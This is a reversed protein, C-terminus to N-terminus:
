AIGYNSFPFNTTTADDEKKNITITPRRGDSGGDNSDDPKKAGGFFSFMTEPNGDKQKDILITKRPGAVPQRQSTQDVRITGRVPGSNESSKGEGGFLSMMSPGDGNGIAQTARDDAPVPPLNAKPPEYTAFPNVPEKEVIQRKIVITSRGLLDGRPTNEDDDDDDDNNDWLSGIMNSVQQFGSPEQSQRNNQIVVTGRVSRDSADSASQIVQTGSTAPGASEQIVQTASPATATSPMVITPRGGFDSGSQLVQTPRPAVGAGSSANPDAQQVVQTARPPFGGQSPAEGSQVVQTARPPFGGQPSPGPGKQVVLTPRPAGMSPGQDSGPIIQTPRVNSATDDVQLTSRVTPADEAVQSSGSQGNLILEYEEKTCDAYANLNIPRGSKDAYEKMALYNSSFTAFKVADAEKGYEDCWSLYASRCDDYSARIEADNETEVPEQNTEFIPPASRNVPVATDDRIAITRRSSDQPVPMTSRPSGAGVDGGVVAITRRSTDAPNYMPFTQM